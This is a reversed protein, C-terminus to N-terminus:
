YRSHLSRKAHTFCAILHGYTGLIQGYPTTHRYAPQFTSHADGVNLAPPTTPRSPHRKQGERKEISFSAVAKRSFDLEKTGCKEESVPVGVEVMAWATEGLFAGRMLTMTKPSAPYPEKTMYPSVFLMLNSGDKDRRKWGENFSVCRTGECLRYFM